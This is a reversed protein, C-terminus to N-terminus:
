NSSQLSGSTVIRQMRILSRVSWFCSGFLKLESDKSRKRVTAMALGSAKKHYTKQQENADAM